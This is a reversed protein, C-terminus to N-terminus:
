RIHYNKKAAHPLSSSIEMWEDGVLHLSHELPLSGCLPDDGSRGHLRLFLVARMM